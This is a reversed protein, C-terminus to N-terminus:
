ALLQQQEAITENPDRDRRCNERYLLYGTLTSLMASVLATVLNFIMGFAYRPADQSRFLYAAIISGVNGVMLVSAVAVARVNLDHYNIASWGIAAAAQMGMGAPILFLTSYLAWKNTLVLLCTYGIAITISGVVLLPSRRNYRSALYGGTLVGITAVACPPATLLQSTKPDFGFGDILTPAFVTISTVNISNLLFVLAFAWTKWDMFVDKFTQISIAEHDTDAQQHVMMRNAQLVKQKTSLWKVKQLDDFLFFYSVIALVITPVGEVIFLYQWDHLGNKGDLYSMGYTLPGSLLGSLTAMTLLISVRLSFEQPNYVKSLLFMIGPIYGSEAAGLILRAILLGTFNTVFATLLTAIGWVLMIFSLWMAANTRKLVVNSPVEFIIYTIFFASIATSLEYPTMGLDTQLGALTANGINARDLFDAFYFLCFLPMIRIDLTRVLKKEDQPDIHQVDKTDAFSPSSSNELSVCSFGSDFEVRSKEKNANSAELDLYGEDMDNSVKTKESGTNMFPPSTHNM